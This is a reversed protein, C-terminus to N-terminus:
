AGLRSIRQFRGLKFYRALWQRLSTDRGGHECLYLGYLYVKVAFGDASPLYKSIFRNEIVTYANEDFDKSFSCFSM